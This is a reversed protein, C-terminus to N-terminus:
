STECLMIDKLNMWTIAHWLIEKRKLAAYYEVTHTYWMKSIWEHTSPCKPQKWTKVIKFLAATFVSTCTDKRILTETKKRSIYGPTSNGSWITSRDKTKKLFRWVTKWLPQVLKYEWWYHILTEKEGCGRYCKNNTSKNILWEVLTLHYRMTPKIQMERIILSTSCEKMHM